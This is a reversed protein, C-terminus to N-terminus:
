RNVSQIEQVDIVQTSEFTGNPLNGGTGDSGPWSIEWTVSAKLQYPSGGTARLYTIGCPPAESARGAAYPTGISGDENITCDGSAPYTTADPTGPDLHLAVPKATTEAWLGTNPLAARVKVEQFTGKDLWVWTPLNVTSKATPRLEVETEPVKIKDYAYEALTKSTPANPVDPIQGANQWFMLRGCLSTDDIGLVNPAVGRWFHGDEGLNYNKYGAVTSPAAFYNAADKEDRFHDTWLRTGQWGQRISVNGEGNTEAFTKLQAPTFAPEYWCPPPKWNVDVSALTGRKGGTPGGIQTVKIGSQSVSAAIQKGEAEGRTDSEGFASAPLPAWFAAVLSTAIVLLGTRWPKM